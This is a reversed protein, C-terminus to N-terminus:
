PHTGKWHLAARRSLDLISGIMRALDPLACITMAPFSGFPSRTTRADLKDVMLVSERAPTLYEQRVAPPVAEPKSASRSRSACLTLMITMITAIGVSYGIVRNKTARLRAPTTSTFKSGCRGAVAAARRTKPRRWSFRDSAAGASIPLWRSPIFDPSAPARRIFCRACLRRAQRRGRRRDALRKAVRPFPSLKAAVSSRGHLRRERTRRAGASRQDPRPSAKAPAPQRRPSGTM